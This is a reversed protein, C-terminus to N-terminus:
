FLHADRGPPNQNDISTVEVYLTYRRASTNRWLLNRVKGPPECSPTCSEFFFSQEIPVPSTATSHIPEHSSHHIPLITKANESPIADRQPFLRRVPQVIEYGIEPGYRLRGSEFSSPALLM